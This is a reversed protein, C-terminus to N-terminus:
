SYGLLYCLLFSTLSTTTYVLYLVKILEKESLPKNSLALVLKIFTIPHTSKTPHICGNVDVFTPRAVHEKQLFGRVSSIYYFGNLLMPMSALVMYFEVRLFVLIFFLMSGILFAGTNGNFIKAPYKNFMLYTLLTVAFVMPLIIEEVSYRTIIKLIIAFLTVAFAFMPSLGNHTDMMNVGNLYVTSAILMLMPYVLHLRTHGIFPAWPRPSYCRMIIMPFAPIFGLLIKWRSRLNFVDDVFGIVLSASMVLISAALIRYDIFDFLYIMGLGVVVGIYLPFGGICPVFYEYPKHVDKCLMGLKKEINILILSTIYTVMISSLLSLSLGLIM